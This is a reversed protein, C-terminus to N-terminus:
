WLCFHGFDTVFVCCVCLCGQESACDLMIASRAILNYITIGPDVFICHQRSTGVVFASDPKVFHQDYFVAGLSQWGGLNNKCTGKKGIRTISWRHPSLDRAPITTRIVNRSFNFKSQLNMLIVLIQKVLGKPESYYDLIPDNKQWLCNGLAKCMKRDDILCNTIVILKTSVDNTLFAWLCRHRVSSNTNLRAQYTRLWSWMGKAQEEWGSYLWRTNVLDPLQLKFCGSKVRRLSTLKIHASQSLSLRTRVQM